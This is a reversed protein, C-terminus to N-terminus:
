GIGANLNGSIVNGSTGDNGGITNNNAGAEILVGYNGNGLTGVRNSNTGISNGVVGNGTAGAGSTGVVGNLNASIVKGAGSTNANAGADILVGSNGNGLPNAGSLDTGILNNEVVNGTTASGTVHIGNGANGSIVNPAGPLTPGVTNNMAGDALLVGAVAN